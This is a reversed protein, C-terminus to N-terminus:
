RRCRSTSPMRRRPWRWRRRGGSARARPWVGSRSSQWTCTTRFTRQELNQPTSQFSPLNALLRRSWTSPKVARRDFCFRSFNLCAQSSSRSPTRSQTPPEVLRDEQMVKMEPLTRGLGSALLGGPDGQNVDTPGESLGPPFGIEYDGFTPAAETPLPRYTAETPQVGYLDGDSLGHLLDGASRRLYRGRTLGSISGSRGTRGPSGSAVRSRGEPSASRSVRERRFASEDRLRRLSPDRLGAKADERRVGPAGELGRREAAGYEEFSAPIGAVKPLNVFRRGGGDEQASISHRGGGDEQAVFSFHVRDGGPVGRSTHQARDGDPVDPVRSAWEGGLVGRSTHQARNGQPLGQNSSARDEHPVAPNYLARDGGSVSQTSLARDGEPVASNYLARDGGPVGHSTHQARDGQPVASNYLARDSGPVSQTSLARDGEPVVPNYFARDGGPVGHSTHQARDGQPVASNYPARDSGPVSQTSLARDEEPVTPNYFARDGGPVGHSTRQARDGHPVAPSRRIQERLQQNEQRLSDLGQQQAKLAEQVQRRVEAEVLERPISASSGDDTGPSSRQPGYLLLAQGPWSEMVRQASRGFLPSDKSVSAAADGHAGASDVKPSTPQSTHQVQQQVLFGTSSGSTGVIQQRTMTTLTEMAPHHRFFEGLRQMWRFAAPVEDLDRAGAARGHGIDHPQAPWAEELFAQAARDSPRVGPSYPLSEIDVQPEARSSRHVVGNPLQPREYNPGEVEGELRAHSEREGQSAANTSQATMVQQGRPDHEAPSSAMGLHLTRRRRLIIGFCQRPVGEFLRGGLTRFEM